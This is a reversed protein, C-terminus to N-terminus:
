TLYCFLLGDSLPLPQVCSYNCFAQNSLARTAPQCYCGIGPKANAHDSLRALFGFRAETRRDLSALLKEAFGPILCKVCRSNPM